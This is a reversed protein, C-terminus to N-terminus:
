FAPRATSRSGSKAPSPPARSSRCGPTTSSRNARCRRVTTAARCTSARATISRPVVPGFSGLLPAQSGDSRHCRALGPEAVAAGERVRGDRGSEMAPGAVPCPWKAAVGYAALACFGGLAWGRAKRSRGELLRWVEIMGVASAVIFLPMLDGIYRQSIYGWVFVGVTGVAATVLVLRAMRVRGPGRRRFTTVAGWVGLVILLPATTTMSATPYTLEMVAGNLAAAPAGPPTIFPFITSFRAGFPQFYAWFQSPIHNLNWPKGGNAALFHRRYANIHTWAQDAMPLGVPIGFKAYTVAANALFGVFGIATLPIAWRRAATGGKGLAFWAAVLICGITVAFGGPTRNLNTCVVLVAAAVMRGWSPREQLGLLAFLSGVVLPITWAFDENYVIPTAVMYIVVSGGMVGAMLVGYSAAEARGVLASGRILVRLRWLLLATFVATAFWALLLSPATLDGDLRSTILLVPM